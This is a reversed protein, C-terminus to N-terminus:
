EVTAQDALATDLKGDLQFTVDGNRKANGLEAEVAVTPADEKKEPSEKLRERYQPSVVIRSPCPLLPPYKKRTQDVCQNIQMMLAEHEPLQGWIDKVIRIM